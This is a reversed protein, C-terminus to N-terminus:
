WRVDNSDDADPDVVFVGREPSAAKPAAPDEMPVLDFDPVELTLPVGSEQRRNERELDEWPFQANM